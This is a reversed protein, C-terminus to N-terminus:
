KEVIVERCLITKKKVGDSDPYYFDSYFLLAKNKDIPIIEPNNCSGAWGIFTKTKPKVNALASRDDPTMAVLPKTWKTGSDNESAQIYTGPRAYCLLTTGCELKALRPLVGVNAFKEPKSWTKGGDTSRSVYMPSWEWGTYNFWQTRMFWVISGDPMFEFDSDSFGGTDYPFEAGDAPYEMHALQKFSKGFDDSRFIEASYYPSYKGTDPNIHGEGSFTSVWLSGDPALKLVGRPFIPKLINDFGAGNHVVRTLCKWDVKAHEKVAETKGAPIRYALWEKKALSPPLRDANYARIAVGNIWDAKMGDPIPLTGEDARKSADYDPTYESQSPQKYKSVSFGSEPPFYIKDGNPLLIGCEADRAADIERWTKGNDLSEFWRNPAGFSKIDDKSVHVAVLLRDGLNYPRPFQYAGWYNKEFPMGRVIVRPEGLRIKMPSVSGDANYYAGSIESAEAQKYNVDNFACLLLASALAAAAPLVSKKTLYSKEM